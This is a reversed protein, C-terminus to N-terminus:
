PQRHYFVDLCWAGLELSVGFELSLFGDRSPKSNPAQFKEPAQHKSNPAKM